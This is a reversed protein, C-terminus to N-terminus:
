MGGFMSMIGGGGDVKIEFWKREDYKDCIDGLLRDSKRLPKDIFEDNSKQIERLDRIKERKEPDFLNGAIANIDSVMGPVQMLAGDFQDHLEKCEAPVGPPYDNFRARLDKWEKSIKEVPLIDGVVASPDGTSEPDTLGETAMGLVKQQIGSMSVALDDMQEAVIAQKQKEIKELHELWDRVDKPMRKQEPTTAPLISDSDRAPVPLISNSPDQNRALVPGSADPSRLKLVGAASLGFVIASVALLGGLIWWLMANRNPAPLAVSTACPDGTAAAPTPALPQGCNMCFRANAPLQGGCRPCAFMTM